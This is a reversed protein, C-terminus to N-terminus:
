SFWVYFSKKCLIKTIQMKVGYEILTNKDKWDFFKILYKIEV